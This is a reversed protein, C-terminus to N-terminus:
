LVPGDGTQTRRGPRRSPRVNNGCPAASHLCRRSVNCGGDPSCDRAQIRVRRLIEAGPSKHPPLASLGYRLRSHGSSVRQASSATPLGNQVSLGPSETPRRLVDQRIRRAPARVSSPMPRRAQSPAPDWRSVQIKDRVGGITAAIRCDPSAPGCGKRGWRLSLVTRRIGLSGGPTEVDPKARQDCPSSTTPLLLVGSKM